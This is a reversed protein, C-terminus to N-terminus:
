SGASCTEHSSSQLTVSHACATYLHTQLTLIRLVTWSLSLGEGKNKQMAPEWHYGDEVKAVLPFSEMQEATVLNHQVEKKNVMQHKTASDQM